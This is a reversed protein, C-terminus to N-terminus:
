LTPTLPAAGTSINDQDISQNHKKYQSWLHDCQKLVSKSSDKNIRARVQFKLVQSKTYHDIPLLYVIAKVFLAIVKVFLCVLYKLADKVKTRFDLNYSAAVCNLKNLQQLNQIYEKKFFELFETASYKDYKDYLNIVNDNLSQGLKAFYGNSHKILAPNNHLLLNIEISAKEISTIALYSLYVARIKENTSTKLLNEVITNKRLLLFAKSLDNKRILRLVESHLQRESKPKDIAENQESKWTIPTRPNIKTLVAAAFSYENPHNEKKIGIGDYGIDISEKTHDENTLQMKFNITDEGFAKMLETIKSDDSYYATALDELIQSKSYPIFEANSGDIIFLAPEITSYDKIAQPLEFKEGIKASIRKEIAHHQEKIHQQLVRSYNKVDYYKKLVLLRNYLSNQPTYLAKLGGKTLGFLAENYTHLNQLTYSKYRVQKRLTELDVGKGREKIYDDGLLKVLDCFSYCDNFLFDSFHRSKARMGSWFKDDSSVDDPWIYREGKHHLKDLDYLTGVCSMDKLTAYNATAAGNPPLISVPLKKTFISLKPKGRDKYIDGTSGHVPRVKPRLENNEPEKEWYDEQGPNNLVPVQEHLEKRIKFLRSLLTGTQQDRYLDRSKAALINIHKPKLSREFSPNYLMLLEHKFGDYLYPKYGVLRTAAKTDKILNLVSKYERAIADEDASTSHCISQVVDCSTGRATKIREICKKTLQYCTPSDSLEFKRKQKLHFTKNLGDISIIQSTKDLVCEIKAKNNLDGQEAIINRALKVLFLMNHITDMQKSPSLSQYIERHINLYNTNFNDKVRLVDLTDADQILRRYINNEIQQKNKQFYKDKQAEKVSPLDKYLIAQIFPEIETATYGLALTYQKFMEASDKDWLDKGEARRGADHFFAALKLLKLNQPDSLLKQEHDTLLNNNKRFDILEDTWCVVRSAHMAGHHKRNITQKKNNTKGFSFLGQKSLLNILLSAIQRIIPINTTAPYTLIAVLRSFYSRYPAKYTINAIDGMLELPNSDKNLGQNRIHKNINTIKAM